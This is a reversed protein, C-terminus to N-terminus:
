VAGAFVTLHRIENALLSSNKMCIVSTLGRIEAGGRGKTKAFTV